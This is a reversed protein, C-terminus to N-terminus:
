RTSWRMFLDMMIDDLWGCTKNHSDLTDLSRQYVILRSDTAAPPATEGKRSEGKKLRAFMGGVEDAAEDFVSWKAYPPWKTIVVKAESDDVEDDTKTERESEDATKKIAALYERELRRKLRNAQNKMMKSAGIAAAIQKKMDDTSMGGGDVHKAVFPAAVEEARALTEQTAHCIGYGEWRVYVTWTWQPVLGLTASATPDILECGYVGDPVGEDPIAKVGTTNEETASEAFPRAANEDSYFVGEM